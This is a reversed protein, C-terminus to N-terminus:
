FSKRLLLWIHSRVCYKIEVRCSLAGVRGFCDFIRGECGPRTIDKTQVIRLIDVRLPQDENQLRLRLPRVSGDAGCLTIVDISQMLQEM